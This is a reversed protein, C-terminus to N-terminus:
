RARRMRAGDELPDAKDFAIPPGEGPTEDRLGFDHDMFQGWVWGWQWVAHESFLNQGTDNFVRNSVYRPSPGPKVTAVGDGYNTPAVRIYNSGAKGWESHYPNNDSGDLTRVSQASAPAAAALIATRAGDV